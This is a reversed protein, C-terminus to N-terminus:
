HYLVEKVRFLLLIVRIKSFGRLRRREFGESLEMASVITRSVGLFLALFPMWFGFFNLLNLM